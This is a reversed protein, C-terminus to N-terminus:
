LISWDVVRPAFLRTFRGPWDTKISVREGTVPHAFSLSAAHLMLPGRGSGYLADGLVPHGLHALHVRIQHRRGTLLRLALLTVGRGEGLVRVRTVAEKGGRGVRMRRADHRDRAIPASVEAPWHRRTGSAIALYCKKLDHGAVLADFAPQFESTLSFLVLGSTEVDLRMLAQVRPVHPWALERARLAVVRQVADTLTIAGGGDGHVLIGQPKEAALCLRDHWAVDVHPADDRLAPPVSPAAFSLTADCGAELTRGVRVPEGAVRLGGTAVVDAVGHRSLGLGSLVERVSAAQTCRLRVCAADIGQIQFPRQHSGSTEAM